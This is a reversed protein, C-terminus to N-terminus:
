FRRADHSQMVPDGTLDDAQPVPVALMELTWPSMPRYWRYMRLGPAM